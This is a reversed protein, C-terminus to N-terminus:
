VISTIIGNTVTVTKLDVTTFSGTAGATGNIRYGATSNIEGTVDFKYAPNNKGVGIRDTSADTYFLNVDTDGEIRCDADAGQENFVFSGDKSIYGLISGASNQWQTLDATQSAIAKVVNTVRSTAGSINQVGLTSATNGHLGGVGTCTANASFMAVGGAGLSLQNSGSFYIGTDIDSSPTIAPSSVSGNPTLLQGALTLNGDNALTAKITGQIKFTHSMGDIVLPSNMDNIYVQATEGDNVGDIVRVVPIDQYISVAPTLKGTTWGASIFTMDYNGTKDEALVGSGEDFHWCAIVGTLDTLYAGNGSNYRNSRETADLAHNWIIFEDIDARVPYNYNTGYKSFGTYTHSNNASLTKTAVEVNDIYLRADTGDKVLIYHHWANDAKSPLGTMQLGASVGGIYLSTGNFYIISGDLFVEDYTTSTPHKRWFEITHTTGAVIDSAFTAYRNAGTASRLYATGSVKKKTNVKFNTESNTTAREIYTEKDNDDKFSFKSITKDITLNGTFPQNTGDLKAYGSMDPTPILAIADDVYKKNVLDNDKTPTKNLIGADHTGSHNPVFMDTAIPVLNQPRPKNGLDKLLKKTENM